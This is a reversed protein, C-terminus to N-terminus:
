VITTATYDKCRGCNTCYLDFNISMVASRCIGCRWHSHPHQPQWHFRLHQSNVAPPPVRLSSRGIGVVTISPKVLIHLRTYHQMEDNTSDELPKPGKPESSQIHGSKANRPINSQNSGQEEVLRRYTIGCNGSCWGNAATREAKLLIHIYLYWEIEEFESGANEKGCSPCQTTPKEKLRFIMSMSIHQGPRVIVAWPKTLPLGRKM